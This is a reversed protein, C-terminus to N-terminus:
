RGTTLKRYHSLKLYNNPNDEANNVMYLNVYPVGLVKDGNVWRDKGFGIVTARKFTSDWDPILVEDGIKLSSTEVLEASFFDSGLRDKEPQAEDIAKMMDMRDYENQEHIGKPYRGGIEWNKVIYVGNDGYDLKDLRRDTRIIGVSLGGGFFNGVVMAFRAVGYDDTRFGRLKCYELFAEVSDRGGNWHLYVGISQGVFKIVASNGM